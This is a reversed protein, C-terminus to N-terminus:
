ESGWGTEEDYFRVRKTQTNFAYSQQVMETVTIGNLTFPAETPLNNMDETNGTFGVVGYPTQEIVRLM